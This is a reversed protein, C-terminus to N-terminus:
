MSVTNSLAILSIWFQFEAIKLLAWLLKNYTTFKLIIALAQCGQAEGGGRGRGGEWKLMAEATGQYTFARTRMYLSLVLGPEVWTQIRM